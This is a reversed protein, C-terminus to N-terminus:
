LSIVLYALLIIVVTWKIDKIQLLTPSEDFGMRLVVTSDDRVVPISLYYVDDGHEGFDFDENFATGDQPNMLSSTLLKEDLLLAAYIGTGGLISSDLQRIIEAESSLTDSSELFDAFIRAYIRTTDIFADKQSNEVVVLMGYFLAPLLVAHVLLLVAIMRASLTNLKRAM